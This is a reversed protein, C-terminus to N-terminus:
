WNPTLFKSNFNIMTALPFIFFITVRNSIVFRLAFRLSIQSEATSVSCIHSVKSKQHEIDNQQVQTFHCTVRIRTGTSHFPSFNPVRPVSNCCTYPPVKSRKIKSTINPDNPASTEFHDIVRFLMAMSHCPSFNPIRYYNYCTYLPVKSRETNLTIKPDNLASTELHGAVRFCNATSCITNFKSSPYVHLVRIPYRQDKNNLTMPSTMRHRQRLAWYNSFPQGYHSLPQFKPSLPVLPDYIPYVSTTPHFLTLNPVPPHNITVHIHPVKSRKTFGNQPCEICKDWFPRDSSFPQAYLSVSQFKPALPLQLICM